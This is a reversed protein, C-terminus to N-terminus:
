EELAKLADELGSYDPHRKQLAKLWQLAQERQGILGSYIGGTFAYNAWRNETGGDLLKEGSLKGLLEGAKRLSEHDGHMLLLDALALHLMFDNPERQLGARVVEEAKDLQNLVGYVKALWLRNRASDRQELRERCADALKRFDKAGVLSGNLIDRATERKPDLEISRRASKEAASYDEFVFLQLYGLVEAAEAAKQKNSAQTGKELYAMDERVHKRTSDSVLDIPKVPQKVSPASSRRDHMEAWTELFAVFGIGKYEQRNLAVARRFDQKSERGMWCESFDAKEGKYLRVGCNLFDNYFRFAGRRRYVEAEEPALHVARDFCAVAERQYQQAAAIRGPTPQAARIGQLLAQPGSCRFPKHGLIEGRSKGDLIKGLVLYARWDNPHDKVVRRVLAEADEKKDIQNLVDALRLRITIDDPHHELQKRFLAAAKLGAEKSKALQDEGLNYLTALRCYLEADTADGKLEKEIAAIKDPDPSLDASSEFDGRGNVSYLIDASICPLSLAKRLKDRKDLRAKPNQVSEQPAPLHGAPVQKKDAAKAATVLTAFVLALVFSYRWRIM